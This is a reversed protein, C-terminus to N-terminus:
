LTFISSYIPLSVSFSLSLLISPSSSFLSFLLCDSVTFFVFFDQSSFVSNSLSFLSSPLFYAEKSKTLGLLKLLLCVNLSGQCDLLKHAIITINLFSILLELETNAGKKLYKKVPGNRKVLATITKSAECSHTM